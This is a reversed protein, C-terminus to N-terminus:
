GAQTGRNMESVNCEMEYRANIKSKFQQEDGTDTCMKTKAAKSIGSRSKPVGKRQGNATTNGNM